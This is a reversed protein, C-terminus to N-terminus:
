FIHLVVNHILPYPRQKQWYLKSILMMLIQLGPIKDLTSLIIVAGM